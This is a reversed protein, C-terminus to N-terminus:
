DEVHQLGYGWWAGNDVEGDAGNDVGNEVVVLVGGGNSHSSGVGNKGCELAM